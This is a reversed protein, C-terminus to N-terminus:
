KWIAGPQWSVACSSAACCLLLPIHSARPRNHLVLLALGCRVAAPQMSMDWPCLGGLQKMHGRRGGAYLLSSVWCWLVGASPYFVVFGLQSSHGAAKLSYCLGVHCWKETLRSSPLLLLLFHEPQWTITPSPKFDQSLHSTAWCGLPLFKSM